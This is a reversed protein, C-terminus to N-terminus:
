AKPTQNSSKIVNLIIGCGLLAALLASGGHSIFVLPIGTLPLVGMMSGINAFAGAIITVVIGVVVLRGFNDRAQGAIRLGWLAFILFLVIVGFGGLFGFEEGLVAFISDGIPEPLFNFKQLSQGFGRGFVQGSGIAILSQNIQYGSDQTDASPNLFTLVRQKAYPKVAIVLSVAIVVGLFALLIHRAPLGAAILVSFGGAFIVGLTGLDPQLVLAVGVLGFVAAFVLLLGTPNKGKAQYRSVLAALYIVFGLKLFEAPQLTYLGLDLWRTAGGASLGLGPVFVLFTLGLTFIFILPAFRRLYRYDIKAMLLLILFSLGLALLQNSLIAYFSASGRGLLGLAASAFILYGVLSVTVVYLFFRRAM